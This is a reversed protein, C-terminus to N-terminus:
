KEKFRSVARKLSKKLDDMGGKLDEWAEDGSEGFQRLMKKVAKQKNRLAEVQELCRVRVEAKSKEARAKLIDIETGWEELQDEIKDLYAKKRKSVSGAAEVGIAKFKSISRDLTEKLEDLSKEMSTKLHDWAEGGSEKLEKLKKELAEQKMRLDEVQKDYQKKIEAKSERGKAMLEDIKAGWEKLQTEIKEQYANREGLREEPSKITTEQMTSGGKGPKFEKVKKPPLERHLPGSM